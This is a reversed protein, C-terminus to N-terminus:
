GAAQSSRASLLAHRLATLGEAFAQRGQHLSEADEELLGSAVEHLGQIAEGLLDLLQGYKRGQRPPARMTGLEAAAAQAAGLIELGLNARRVFPAGTETIRLANAIRNHQRSSDLEAALEEVRLLFAAEPARGPGEQRLRGILGSIDV